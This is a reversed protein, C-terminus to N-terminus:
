RAAFPKSFEESSLVIYSPKRKDIVRRLEDIDPGSYEAPISDLQQGILESAVGHHCVFKDYDTFSAAPYLLGAEGFQWRFRSMTIQFATSGTKHVGIHILCRM